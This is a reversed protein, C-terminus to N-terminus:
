PPTLFKRSADIDQLREKAREVAGDYQSKGKAKELFREFSAQARDLAALTHATGSGARAQFEQTLIGENFYADPREPDTKKAAEIEHSVAALRQEYDSEAGSLPGRMAIALGLHADYDNPRLALAAAFARQAQEFGRFSLNVAALNMQAEFFRPDLATATAFAAVAANVRGLENMILGETNHLTADKGNKAIAQSCVLAALELQQVDAHKGGPRARKKAQKLYYLALQNSAPTYADDIALARQLNLKACELDDKCGPASASGDRRMQLSALDVLAATNKFRGQEVSQQLSAIAGDLDSTERFRYLALRALAPDFSPDDKAAKQFRLRANADDKCRQFALGADFTAQVFSGGSEAAADDFLAAVATCAASTWDNAEDHRVFVALAADFKAQAASGPPQPTSPPAPPPVAPPVLPRAGTCALTSAALLTALALLKM